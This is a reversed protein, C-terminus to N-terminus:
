QALDKKMTPSVPVIGSPQPQPAVAAGHNLGATYALIMPRIDAALVSAAPPAGTAQPFLILVVAAALVGVGGVIQENATYHSALAAAGTAVLGALGQGTTSARAWTPLSDIISPM